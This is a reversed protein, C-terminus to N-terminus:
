TLVILQLTWNFIMKAACSYQLIIPLHSSHIVDRCTLFIFVLLLLNFRNENTERREHLTNLFWHRMLAKLIFCEWAIYIAISRLHTCERVTVDVRTESSQECLMQDRRNAKCTMQIGNHDTKHFWNILTTMTENIVDVRTQLHYPM